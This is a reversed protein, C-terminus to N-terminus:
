RPPVGAALDDLVQLWRQAADRVKTSGDGRATAEALPRQAVAAGRWDDLALVALYRVTEDSDHVVAHALAPVTRAGAEAGLAREGLVMAAHQRVVTLPSQLGRLAEDVEHLRLTCTGKGPRLWQEVLPLLAPQVAPLSEVPRYDLPLPDLARNRFAGYPSSLGQAVCEDGLTGAQAQQLLWASDGLHALAGACINRGAQALHRLSSRPVARLVQARLAAVVEPTAAGIEGLLRAAECQTETRALLPLLAPIAAPGFARLARQAAEGHRQAQERTLGLEPAPQHALCALHYRLREADPLAAVRAAEALDAAHGPLLRAFAEDGLCRLAMAVGEDSDEHLLVAFGPTLRDAVASAHLADRLRQCVRVLADICRRDAAEWQAVDGGQAETALTAEAAAMAASGSAMDPWCWDAPNWRLDYLTGEGESAEDGAGALAAESNMAVTPLHIPGDHERYIGALAVAYVDSRLPHARLAPLVQALADDLLTQEFAQWDMAPAAQPGM